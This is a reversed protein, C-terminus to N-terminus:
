GDSAGPDADGVELIQLAGTPCNAVTTRLKAELTEDTAMGPNIWPRQKRDFVEPMNHTCQGNHNCLALDFTVDVRPGRYRKRGPQPKAENQEVPAPRAVAVSGIVQGDPTELMAFTMDIYLSTGDACLAKTRRASGDSAMAGREMAASFARHHADRLKLPIMFEVDRGIADDKTYGFMRGCAQNWVRVIGQGDIVIIADTASDLAWAAVEGTIQETSEPNWSTM